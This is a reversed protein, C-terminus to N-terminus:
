IIQGKEEVLFIDIEKLSRITMIENSTVQLFFLVQHIKKTNKKHGILSGINKREKCAFSGPNSVPILEAM